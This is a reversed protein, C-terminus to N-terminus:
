EKAKCGMRLCCALCNKEEGTNWCIRLAKKPEFVTEEVTSSIVIPERYVGENDQHSEEQPQAM